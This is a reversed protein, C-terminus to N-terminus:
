KRSYRYSGSFKNNPCSISAVTIEV